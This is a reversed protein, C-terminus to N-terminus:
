LDRKRKTTKEDRKDPVDTYRRRKVHERREGFRKRECLIIYITLGFFVAGAARVQDVVISVSLEDSSLILDVKAM